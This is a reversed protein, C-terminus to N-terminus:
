RGSLADLRFNNPKDSGFVDDLISLSPYCFVTSLIVKHVRFYTFVFM